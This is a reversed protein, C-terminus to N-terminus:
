RSTPTWAPLSASSLAMVPTSPLMCNLPHIDGTIGPNGQAIIAILSNSEALGSACAIQVQRPGRSSGLSRYGDTGTGLVQGLLVLGTQVVRVLIVFSM